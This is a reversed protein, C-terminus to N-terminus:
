KYHLTPSHCTHTKDEVFLREVVHARPRQQSKRDESSCQQMYSRRLMREVRFAELYAEQSTKYNNMNELIDPRLGKFYHVLDHTEDEELKCTKCSEFNTPINM